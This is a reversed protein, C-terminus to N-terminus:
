STNLSDRIGKSVREKIPIFLIGAILIGILTGVGILGVNVLFTKDVIVGAVVPLLIAAMMQILGILFQGVCIPM